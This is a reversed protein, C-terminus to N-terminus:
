HLNLLYIIEKEIKGGMKQVAMIDAKARKINGMNYYTLARNNYAMLNSTDKQIAITFFRIAASYNKKKAIDIGSNMYFASASKPNSEFSLIRNLENKARSNEPNLGLSKNLEIKAKYYDGLSFYLHGLNFYTNPNDPNLDKSISLYSIAKQFSFRKGYITGLYNYVAAHQLTDPSLKLCLIYDKIAPNFDQLNFYSEARNYYADYYKKDIKIAKDFAQIAQRFQNKRNYAIGLGFWGIRAKPSSKVVDSFLTMDNKWIFTRQHSIFSLVLLYLVFIFIGFKQVIPKKYGIPYVLFLLACYMGISAIYLYRETILQNGVTVFKLVFFLNLIFFFVAWYVRRQVVRRSKILWYVIFGVPFVALYVQIPLWGKLKFPNPYYASLNIPVFGKYVYLILQDIILFFRDVFSYSEFNHIHGAKERSYVVIIGFLFSLLFFPIKEILLKLNFKRKEIFDISLLVFPLSIAMVKSLLSFIFLLISVILSLKRKERVYKIYYILSGLYFSSFLLTSRASIWAVAEVQMPHLAFLASIVISLKKRKFLLHVFVYVLLVNLLHIMLSDFHYVRPNLKAFHYEIAFTLTTIPQYMGVYFSSFIKKINETSLEQIDINETLQKEDDWHTFGNNISQFYVIVTFAIITLLWFLSSKIKM